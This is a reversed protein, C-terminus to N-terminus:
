RGPAPGKRIHLHHAGRNGDPDTSQDIVTLGAESAMVAAQAAPLPHFTRFAGSRYQVEELYPVDGGAFTLFGIGGPALVRGVEGFVAPMSSAPVHLLAFSSWVGGVSSSRLPLQEVRGRVLRGALGVDRARAQGLMAKSLDVGFAAMGRARLHSLHLGPGCGLDVVVAGPRLRSGLEDLLSTLWGSHPGLRAQRRTYAAAILDYTARTQEQADFGSTM